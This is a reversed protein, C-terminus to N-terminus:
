DYDFRYFECDIFEEPSDYGFQEYAAPTTDLALAAPLTGAALAAALAASLICRCLQKM